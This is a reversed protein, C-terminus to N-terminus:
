WIPLPPKMVPKRINREESSMPVKDCDVIHEQEQFQWIRCDTYYIELLEM